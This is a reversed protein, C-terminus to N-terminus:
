MASSFDTLLASMVGIRDNKKKKPATTHSYLKFQIKELQWRKIVINNIPYANGGM